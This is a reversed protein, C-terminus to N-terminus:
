GARVMAADIGAVTQGYAVRIRNASKENPKNRYWQMLYSADFSTFLIKYSSGGVANVEYRGDLASCQFFPPELPEGSAAQVVWPCVGALPQGTAADTITGTIHGSQGLAADIGSTEAALAVQVPDAHARDPSDNWWESVYNGFSNETFQVQYPGAPLGRIRYLGDYDTEAIGFGWPDQLGTAFVTIYPLPNGALDTVRGTIQGLPTLQADVTTEQAASVTIVDADARTARDNAWEPVYFDAAFRVNYGGPDTIVARYQGLYDTCTYATTSESGVALIEVCANLPEGTVADTVTGVIAGADLLAVNVVANQGLSVTIPDATDYTDAAYAWRTAYRQVSGYVDHVRIRYTGIPVAMTYTGDSGTCASGLVDTPTAYAEVCATGVPEGTSQATITGTVYGIEEQVAAAAAPSATLAASCLPVAIISLLRSAASRAM